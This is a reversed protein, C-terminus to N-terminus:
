RKIIMYSVPRSDFHQSSGMPNVLVKLGPSSTFKWCSHCLIFDIFEGSRQVTMFNAKYYRCYM